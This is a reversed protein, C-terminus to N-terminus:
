PRKGKPVALIRTGAERLILTMVVQIKGEESSSNQVGLGLIRGIGLGSIQGDLTSLPPPISNPDVWLGRRVQKAEADKPTIGTVWCMRSSCWSSGCALYLKITERPDILSEKMSILGAIRAHGASGPIRLVSVNACGANTGGM